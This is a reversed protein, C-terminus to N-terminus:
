ARNVGSYDRWFEEIQLNCKEPQSVVAHRMARVIDTIAHSHKRDVARLALEIEDLCEWRDDEDEPIERNPFEARANDLYQLMVPCELEGFTDVLEPFNQGYRDLLMRIGGSSIELDVVRAWLTFRVFPPLDAPEESYNGRLGSHFVYDTVKQTLDNDACSQVVPLIEAKM